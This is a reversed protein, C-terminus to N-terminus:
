SKNWGIRLKQLHKRALNNRRQKIFWIDSIYDPITLVTLFAQHLVTQRYHIKKLSRMKGEYPQLHAFMLKSINESRNM